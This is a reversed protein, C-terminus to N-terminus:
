AVAETIRIEQMIQKIDKNCVPCEWKDSLQLTHDNTELIVAKDCLLQHCKGTRKTTHKTIM